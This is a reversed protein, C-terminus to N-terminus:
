KLKISQTISLFYTSLTYSKQQITRKEHSTNSDLWEKAISMSHSISRAFFGVTDLHKSVPIIGSLDQIGKTSRFGYVGCAAAPMIVSGFTDTGVSFDVWDYGAVAAASGASSMSPSQYGDARPNFSCQWDIWDM